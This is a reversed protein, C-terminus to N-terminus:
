QRSSLRDEEADDSLSCSFVDGDNMRTRLAPAISAAAPCPAEDMMRAISAMFSPDLCGDVTARWVRVGSAPFPNGYAPSRSASVFLKLNAGPVLEEWKTRCEGDSAM